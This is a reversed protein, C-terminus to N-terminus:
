YDHHRNIDIRAMNTKIIDKINIKNIPLELEYPAELYNTIFEEEETTIEPHHPQFIDGLHNAFQDTQQKGNKPRKLRTTARSLM